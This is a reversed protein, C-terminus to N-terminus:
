NPYFTGTSLPLKFSNNLSTRMFFTLDSCLDFFTLLYAWPYRPSSRVPCLSSICLGQPLLRYRINSSCGPPKPPQPLTFLLLLLLHPQLPSLTSFTFLPSYLSGSLRQIWHSSVPPVPCFLSTIHGQCSGELQEVVCVIHFCPCFCPSWNPPQQIVWTLSSPPKWWCPLLTSLSFQDSEQYIKFYLWCFTRGTQQFTQSLSFLWSKQASCCSLHLQWQSLHPSPSCALNPHTWDSIDILCELPSVPSTTSIHIHIDPSFDLKSMYTLSGDANFAM